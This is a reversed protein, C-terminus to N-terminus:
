IIAQPPSVYNQNQVLWNESVFTCKDIIRPLPTTRKGAFKESSNDMSLLKKFKPDSKLTSWHKLETQFLKMAKLYLSGDIKASPFKHKKVLEKRANSDIIIFLDPIIFHLIKSAGVPFSENDSRRNLGKEGSNALDDFISIIHEAIATNELNINQLTYSRLSELKPKHSKIKSQLKAAWSDAGEALYKRKGMMRQMDFSILGATIDDILDKDWIGETEERRRIVYHYVAEYHM